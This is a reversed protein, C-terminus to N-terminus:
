SIVARQKGHVCARHPGRCSGATECDSSGSDPLGAGRPQGPPSLRLRNLPAAPPPEGPAAWREAGRIPSGRDSATAAAWMPHSRCAPSLSTDCPLANARSSSMVASVTDVTRPPVSGPFHFPSRAFSSGPLSLLTPLAGGGPIGFLSKVCNM